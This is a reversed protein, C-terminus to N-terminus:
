VYKLLTSVCQYLTPPVLVITELRQIVKLQKLSTAVISMIIVLKMIVGDFVKRLQIAKTTRLIEM